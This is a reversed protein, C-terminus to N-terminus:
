CACCWAGDAEEAWAAGRRMAARVAGSRAEATQERFQWQRARGLRSAESSITLVPSEHTASPFSRWFVRAVAADMEDFEMQMADEIVVGLLKLSM